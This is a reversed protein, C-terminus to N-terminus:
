ASKMRRVNALQSWEGVQRGCWERGDPGTFRFDTRKAGFNNRSRGTVRAPFKLTGPWNTVTAGVPSDTLYLTAHGDRQMAERDQDGCCPFCYRVSDIEGYGTTMESAFLSFPRGCTACHTANDINM